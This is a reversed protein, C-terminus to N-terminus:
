HRTLREIAEFITRGDLSLEFSQIAEADLELTVTLTASDRRYSTVLRAHLTEIKNARNSVKMAVVGALAEARDCLQEFEDESRAAIALEVLQGM